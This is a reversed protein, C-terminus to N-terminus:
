FGCFVDGVCCGFWLVFVSMSFLYCCPVVVSAGGRFPWYLIVPPGLGAACAGLRAGLGWWPGFCM